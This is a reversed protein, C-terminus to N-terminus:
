DPECKCLYCLISFAASILDYVETQNTTERTYSPKREYRKVIWEAILTQLFM